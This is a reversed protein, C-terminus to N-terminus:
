RRCKAPPKCRRAPPALHGPRSRWLLGCRRRGTGDALGGRRQRRYRMNSGPSSEDTGEDAPEPVAPDEALTLGDDPLTHEAATPEATGFPTRKGFGQECISLLTRDSDAVVMGVVIEENSLTIGKVGRTARGMPRVDEHNFRIAMGGSTSLVLDQDGRPPDVPEFRKGTIWPEVMPVFVTALAICTVAVSANALKIAGYFTLWHLAVLAGIGSYIGWQRAPMARLGRWVRAALLLAACVIAMRWVVLAMAGLTIAKGLIATFGWLLVCAHMQWQAKAAPTM